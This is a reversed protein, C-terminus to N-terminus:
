EGAMDKWLEKEYQTTLAAINAVYQLTGDKRLEMFLKTLGCDIIVDGVTSRPSALSCITCLDGNSNWSFPGFPGLANVPEPHSITVGEYLSDLNHALSRRYYGGFDLNEVESFTGRKNTSIDGRKLHQQGIYNGVIRFGLRGYGPFDTRALWENVEYFYPDNDAWWVIANGQQWFATLAVLFEGILRRNSGDALVANDTRGCLVWVSYYKGSKLSSIGQEYNEVVDMTIGYHDMISDQVCSDNSPYRRKLYQGACQGEAPCCDCVLIRKGAFWNRRYMFDASSQEPHGATRGGLNATQTQLGILSQPMLPREALFATLRKYCQVDARRRAFLTAMDQGLELNINTPDGARGFIPRVEPPLNAQLIPAFRAVAEDVPLIANTAAKSPSRPLQALVDCFMQSLKADGQAIDPHSCTVCGAYATQSSTAAIFKSWMKEVDSLQTDSLFTSRCFYFGFSDNADSLIQSKWQEAQLLNADIGSSIVFIARHIRGPCRILSKAYHSVDALRPASRDVLAADLVRQLVQPSHEDEFAKIVFQFDYDAFVIVSYPVNCMAFANAM